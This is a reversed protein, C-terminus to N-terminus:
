HLKVNGELLHQNILKRLLRWHSCESDKCAVDSYGGSTSSRHGPVWYASVDSGYAGAHKTDLVSGVKPRFDLDDPAVLMTRVQIEGVNGAHIGPLM